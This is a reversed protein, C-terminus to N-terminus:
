HTWRGWTEERAHWRPRVAWRGWRKRWHPWEVWRTWLEQPWRVRWGWRHTSTTLRSCGGVLGSLRSEGRWCQGRTNNSKLTSPMNRNPPFNQMLASPLPSQVHRSIRSGPAPHLHVLICKLLKRHAVTVTKWTLWYRPLKLLVTLLRVVIYKRSLEM